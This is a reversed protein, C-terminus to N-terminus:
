PPRLSPPWPGMPAAGPRRGAGRGDVPAGSLQGHGPGHGPRRGALWCVGGAVLPRSAMVQFAATADVGFSAPPWRGLELVQLPSRAHLSWAQLASLGDTSFSSRAPAEAARRTERPGDPHLLETGGDMLARAAVADTPRSPWRPACPAPPRPGPTIGGLNLRALPFGSQVLSLADALSAFLVIVRRGEYKDQRLAEAAERVRYIGVKIQPPVAMPLLQRQMPDAAVADNAVVLCDAELARAWGVVVQGHILRDDVRALVILPM